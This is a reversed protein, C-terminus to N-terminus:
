QPTSIGLLHNQILGDGVIGASQHEGLIQVVSTKGGQRVHILGLCLEFGCPSTGGLGEQLARLGFMGNGDQQTLRCRVKM